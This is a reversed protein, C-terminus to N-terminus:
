PVRCCSSRERGRRDILGARANGVGKVPQPEAPPSREVIDIREEERSGVRDDRLLEQGLVRRLAQPAATSRPVFTTTM